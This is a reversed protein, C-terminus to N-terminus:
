QHVNLNSGHRLQQLYHQQSCQLLQIKEFYLKRQIYAWSHSQPIQPLEIKLKKLFKWVTRPLSQVLKCKQWCHLLTEQEGCGRWCKNNTSKKITTMRFPTFHYRLITKIQIERTILSMSCRKMQGGTPRRQLFTQKSRRSM